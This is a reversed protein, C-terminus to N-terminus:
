AHSKLTAALFDVVRGHSVVRVADLLEGGLLELRVIGQAPDHDIIEQLLL